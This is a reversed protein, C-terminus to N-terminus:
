APQPRDDSLPKLADRRLTVYGYNLIARAILFGSRDADNRLCGNSRFLDLLGLYVPCYGHARKVRSAMYPNTM